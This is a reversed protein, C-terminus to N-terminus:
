RHQLVLGKVNVSTDAKWFLLLFYKSSKMSGKSESQVSEQDLFAADPARQEWRSGHRQTRDDWILAVWCDHEGGVSRGRAFKARSMRGRAGVMDYSCYMRKGQRSDTESEISLHLQDCCAMWAGKKSFSVSLEILRHIASQSWEYRSQPSVGVFVTFPIAWRQRNMVTLLRQKLSKATRQHLRPQEGFCLHLSLARPPNLGSCMTNALQRGSVVAWTVTERPWCRSSSVLSTGRAMKGDGSSTM